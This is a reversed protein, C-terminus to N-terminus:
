LGGNVTGTTHGLKLEAYSCSRKSYALRCAIRLESSWRVLNSAVSSDMSSSICLKKLLKMVRVRAFFSYFMSLPMRATQYFRSEHLLFLVCVSADVCNPLISCRVLLVAIKPVASDKYGHFSIYHQFRTGASQQAYWGNLNGEHFAMAGLSSM